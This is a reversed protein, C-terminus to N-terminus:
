YELTRTTTSIRKNKQNTCYSETWDGNQNYKSYFCTEVDEGFTFNTKTLLLHSKIKSQTLQNQDNYFFYHESTTGQPETENFSRESYFELKNDDRYSFQQILRFNSENDDLNTMRGDDDFKANTIMENQDNLIEIINNNEDFKLRGNEITKKDNNSKYNANTYDVEKNIEDEDIYVKTVFGDSNAEITINAKLNNINDSYIIKQKKIPISNPIIEPWLLINYNNSLAILKKEQEEEKQDKCSFLALCATILVLTKKMTEDGKNFIM